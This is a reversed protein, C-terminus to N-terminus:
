KSTFYDWVCEIIHGVGIPQPPDDQIRYIPYFLLTSVPVTPTGVIPVRLIPNGKQTNAKIQYANTQGVTIRERPAPTEEDPSVLKYFKIYNKGEPPFQTWGFLEGNELKYIAKVDPYDRFLDSNYPSITLYSDTRKSLLTGYDVVVIQSIPVVKSSSPRNHTLPSVLDDNISQTCSLASCILLLCILKKM